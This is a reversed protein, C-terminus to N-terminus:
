RWPSMWCMSCTARWGTRSTSAPRPSAPSVTGLAADEVSVQRAADIERFYDLQLRLQDFEPVVEITDELTRVAETYRGDAFRVDALTSMLFGRLVRDGVGIGLAGGSAGEGIVICIIPSRLAAMEMLNRAIAEGQGREEAELGPYAGPTDILSVVPIGFKEAVAQEDMVTDTMTNVLTTHDDVLQAMDKDGTSIIVQRGTTSRAFKLAAEIAEAGSNCFFVRNLSTPALKALREALRARIPNYFMSYCNGLALYQEYIADAVAQNGHGCAGPTM